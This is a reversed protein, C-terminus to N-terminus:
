IDTKPHKGEFILNSCVPICLFPYEPVIPIQHSGHVLRHSHLFPPFPWIHGHSHHPNVGGIDDSGGVVDQDVATSLERVVLRRQVQRQTGAHPGYTHQVVPARHCLCAKEDSGQGVVFVQRYALTLTVSSGSLNVFSNSSETKGIGFHSFRWHLFDSILFIYKFFYKM